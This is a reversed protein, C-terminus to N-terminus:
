VRQDPMAARRRQCAKRNTVQTEHRGSINGGFGAEQAQAAKGVQLWEPWLSSADRDQGKGAWFAGIRLRRAM